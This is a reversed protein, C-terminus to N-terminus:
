READDFLDPREDITPLTSMDVGEDLTSRHQTPRHHLASGTDRSPHPGVDAGLGYPALGAASSPSSRATPRM